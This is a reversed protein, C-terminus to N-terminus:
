QKKRGTILTGVTLYFHEPDKAFFKRAESPSSLYEVGMSIVESAGYTYIKGVYPDAFKDPYAEEDDRYGPNKTLKSLKEPNGTARSKIWDKTAIALASDDYEVFHGMEHFLTVKNAEKAWSSISDNSYNKLAITRTERQAYARGDETTKFTHLRAPLRDQGILALLSKRM